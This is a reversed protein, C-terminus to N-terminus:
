VAPSYQANSEQLLAPNIRMPLRKPAFAMMVADARNPSAAGDPTKDVMMKGTASIKWQPQSLEICLKSLDGAESSLSILNDPDYDGGNVARYTNRFREALAGYGQAKANQWRDKAPVDTGPVKREPESVAGSGRFAEIRYVTLLRQAKRRESIRAADGRVGAGLGDADYEFGDLKLEDCFQFARETTAFIDSNKGSWAHCATLLIGHRAVFANADTGEDAVDLAGRKVGTPEIGLKKHADIAAQVWSPHIIIGEVSATYSCDVEQALSVPDLRAKQAEYWDQDKRPDDRWSFSFVDVKGSHRRIAFSNAMGFPTSIDIRCNTTQSLAQDTIDPHELHASEDVFYIATRDGRGISDGCEGTIVSGTIPFSARMYLTHLREDWEKGRFEVPMARMYARIKEFISKPAGKEDVYEAKRSGFGIVVGDYLMCLSCAVAVALWTVGSDRSKETLLDKRSRWHEFVARIWERQKPWLVFPMFAPRGIEVNRPDSTTGWDTIFDEIHERYHAKAWLALDPTERIRQLREARAKFVSAYDPSRFDFSDEIRPM